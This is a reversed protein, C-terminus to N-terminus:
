HQRAGALLQSCNQDKALGPDVFALVAAVPTLLTGVATAIAGQKLLQGGGLGLSPKRLIGGIRIPSRIRVLSVHKPQGQLSLDLRETGLNINGRGTLLVNQTDFVFDQVRATGNDLAFQAVGCRIAARDDNGKVLLGLGEAVDIGALEAFAARIDGGPVVATMRGNANSMVQHVSDGTGDILARAQVVGGLPPAGPSSKSTFQALQLDAVRIEAHVRPPTTRADISVDGALAGQPMEFRVPQVHLIGNELKAQLDFQRLPLKGAVVSLARYSVKADVANLREVQLHADPFLALAPANPVKAAAARTPPAAAGQEGPKLDLPAAAGKAKSGTVAALDKLMLRASQLDAQVSPRKTSADIDATGAIDSDGLTGQIDRVAIRKGDRTLLARLKFPPTNPLTIQTLYYLEALDRGEADIRLELNGLDFPNLLRGDAKIHNEGATVSVEFPYPRDPSVALLPGGAMEVHFPERNITGEGVMRFPKQVTSTATAHAEITGKVKLQRLDDILVLEGSEVLVSRMAPIKAPAPAAEKTPAQNEFTWNARGSKEQHLYLVPHDMELQALVLHGGLLARPEIQVRARDIRALPQASEWPPGGITLGEVSVSPYRAWVRVKLQGAITISRGFRASATREIAGKFVNWDIFTVVLAVVSLLGAVALLVYWLPSRHAIKVVLRYANEPPIM